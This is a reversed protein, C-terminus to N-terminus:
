QEDKQQNNKSDIKEVAGAVFGSVGFVNAVVDRVRETTLNNMDEKLNHYRKLAADTCEDAFKMPKTKLFKQGKPSSKVDTVISNWATKVGKKLASGLSIFPQKIEDLVKAVKPKKMVKNIMMFAKGTSWHLAMGSLTATIVVDAAKGVKQLTTGAFINKSKDADTLEHIANQTDKLDKVDQRYQREAAGERLAEAQKKQAEIQKQRAAKKAAELIQLDSEPMVVQVMKIHQPDQSREKEGRTKAKFSLNQNIASVLVVYRWMDSSLM